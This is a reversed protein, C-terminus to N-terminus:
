PPATIIHFLTNINLSMSDMYYNIHISNVNIILLLFLHTDVTVLVWIISVSIIHSVHAFLVVLNHTHSLYFERFIVHKEEYTMCSNSILNM